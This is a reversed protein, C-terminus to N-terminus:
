VHVNVTGSHFDKLSSRELSSMQDAILGVFQSSRLWDIGCIVDGYNCALDLERKAKVHQVHAFVSVYSCVCM